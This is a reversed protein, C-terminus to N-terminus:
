NDGKISRMKETSPVPFISFIKKKCSTGLANILRAGPKEIFHFSLWSALLVVLGFAVLYIIHLSVSIFDSGNVRPLKLFLYILPMHLLYLSFSCEGCFVIFKNEFFIKGVRSPFTFCFVLFAGVVATLLSNYFEKNSIFPLSITGSQMLVLLGILIMHLFTISNKEQEDKIRSRVVGAVVGFLFYHLKAGIFTGPFFNRCSLIAISGFVLFMIGVIDFRKLYRSTAAWVLIFLVYFEVEPTISWFVSVNGSFLIHRLINQNSIQYVFNPDMFTYVIYSLLLMFLYAPAIRSFRSIAYEIVNGLSYTKGVYLYAMLFGSLSFFITVGVEGLFNIKLPLSFSSISHAYVVMLAALGRM